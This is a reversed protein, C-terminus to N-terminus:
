VSSVSGLKRNGPRGAESASRRVGHGPHSPARRCTDEKAPLSLRCTRAQTQNPCHGIGPAVSTSRFTPRSRGNSLPVSGASVFLLIVAFVDPSCKTLFQCGIPVWNAGLQGFRVPVSCFLFLCVPGYSVTKFGCFLVTRSAVLYFPIGSFTSAGTKLVPAKLWEAVWGPTRARGSRAVRYALGADRLNM